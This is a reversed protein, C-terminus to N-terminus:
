LTKNSCAKWASMKLLNATYLQLDAFAADTKTLERGQAVRPSGLAVGKPELQYFQHLRQLCPIVIVFLGEVHCQVTSWLLNHCAM